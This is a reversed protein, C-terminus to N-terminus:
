SFKELMKESTDENLSVFELKGKANEYLKFFTELQWEFCVIKIETKDNELLKKVLSMKSMDLTILEYVLQEDIIADADYVSAPGVKAAKIQEDSFLLQHLKDQGHPHMLIKLLKEGCSNVPLTYAEGYIEPPYVKSKTKAKGGSTLEPANEMISIIEDISPILFLGTGNPHTKRRDESAKIGYVSRHLKELYDKLIRESNLPLQNMDKTVMYVPYSNGRGILHGLFRSTNIRLTPSSTDEGMIKYRKVVKSIFFNQNDPNIERLIEEYTRGEDKDLINILMDDLGLFRNQPNPNDKASPAKRRKSPPTPLYELEVGDVPIKARHMFHIVSAIHSARLLALKQGTFTQNNTLLNYHAFLGQHTEVQTYGHPKKIRYIVGAETSVKAIKKDRVLQRVNNMLYSKGLQIKDLESLPMQGCLSVLHVLYEDLTNSVIKM